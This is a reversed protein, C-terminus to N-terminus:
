GAVGAIVVAVGAGTVPHLAATTLPASPCDTDFIVQVLEPLTSPSPFNGISIPVIGAPVVFTSKLASSVHSLPSTVRQISGPSFLSCGAGTSVILATFAVPVVVVVAADSEFLLS